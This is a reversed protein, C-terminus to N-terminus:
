VFVSRITHYLTFSPEDSVLHGTGNNNHGNQPRPVMTARMEYCETVVILPKPIVVKGHLSEAHLQRQIAKTSLTNQLRNNMESTVQPLTTKSM